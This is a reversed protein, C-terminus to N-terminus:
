TIRFQRWHNHDWSTGRSLIAKVRQDLLQILVITIGVAQNFNLDARFTFQM